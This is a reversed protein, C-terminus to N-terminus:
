SVEYFKEKWYEAQREFYERDHKEKYYKDELESYSEDFLHNELKSHIFLLIKNM